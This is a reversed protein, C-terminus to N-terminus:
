YIEETESQTRSNWEPFNLQLSLRNPPSVTACTATTLVYRSTIVTAKCKLTGWIDSSSSHINVNVIFRDVIIEGFAIDLLSAAFALLAINIKMKFLVETNSNRM